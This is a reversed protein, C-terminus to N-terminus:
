GGFFSNQFRAVDSLDVDDDGDLDYCGCDPRLTGDPGSMCQKFSDYDVLDTLGDTNCDGPSASFWFGADLEFGGGTMTGADPQGVTGSLEFEGGTCFMAGGGDVTSRILDFEPAAGASLCLCGSLLVLLRGTLVRRQARGPGDTRTRQPRCRSGGTDPVTTTM